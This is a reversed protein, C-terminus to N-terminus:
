IFIKGHVKNLHDYTAAGTPFTAMCTWCIHISCKQCTMHQCGGNKEIDTNCKPCPRVGVSKKWNEFMTDMIDQNMLLKYEECTVGPHSSKKCSTCFSGQCLTCKIAPSGKKFIQECDPTLCSMYDKQNLSMFNNVSLKVLRQMDEEKLLNVLDELLIIESCAACKIPISSQDVISEALQASLCTSCFSHGCHLLTYPDNMEDFCVPCDEKSKQALKDDKSIKKFAKLIEPIAGELAAPLGTVEIAKKLFNIRIKTLEFKTKIKELLESQNKILNKISFGEYNITETKMRGIFAELANEIDPIKNESGYISLTKQRYNIRISLEFETELKRLYALMFNQPKDKEERKGGKFDEKKGFKSGNRDKGGRPNKGKEEPQQVANQRPAFICDAVTRLDVQLTQPEFVRLILEAGEAASPATDGVVKVKIHGDGEFNKEFFSVKLAKQYKKKLAEFRTDFEKKLLRFVEKDMHYYFIFTRFFIMTKGQISITRPITDAQKVTETRVFVTIETADPPKAGFNTKKGVHKRTEIGFVELETKNRNKITELAEALMMQIKPDHESQLPVNEIWKLKFTQRDIVDTGKTKSSKFVTENKKIKMDRSEMFFDQNLSLLGDEDVQSDFIKIICRGFSIQKSASPGLFDKKAEEQGRSQKFPKRKQENTLILDINKLNTYRELLKLIDLRSVSLPINTIIYERKADFLLLKSVVGGNTLVAKCDGGAPLVADKKKLAEKTQTVLEQIKKQTEAVQAKSVFVSITSDIENFRIRANSPLGLTKLQEQKNFINYFLAYGDIKVIAEELQLDELLKAPDNAKIFELPVAQKYLDMPLSFGLSPVITDTNFLRHLGMCVLIDGKMKQVDNATVSKKSQLHLFGLNQFGSYVCASQHLMFASLLRRSEDTAESKAALDLKVIKRALDLVLFTNYQLTIMSGFSLGTSKQLQSMFSNNFLGLKAGAVVYDMAQLIDITALIRDMRSRRSTTSTLSMTESKREESDDYISGQEESEDEDDDEDIRISEEPKQLSDSTVGPSIALLKKSTKLLALMAVVDLTMGRQSGLVLNPFADIGFEFMLDLLQLNRQFQGKEFYNKNVKFLLDKDAKIHDPPSLNFLAFVLLILEKQTATLTNMGSDQALTDGNYLRFTTTLASARKESEISTIPVYSRYELGESNVTVARYGSDIIRVINAPLLGTISHKGSAVVMTLQNPNSEYLRALDFPKLFHYDLNILRIIRGRQKDVQGAKWQSAFYGQDASSKTYFLILGNDGNNASLRVHKLQERIYDSARGKPDGANIITPQTPESNSDFTAMDYEKEKIGNEGLSSLCLETAGYLILKCKPLVKTTLSILIDLLQGYNEFSKANIVYVMDAGRSGEQESFYSNNEALLGKLTNKFDLFEINEGEFNFAGAFRRILTGTVSEPRTIYSSVVRSGILLSELKSKSVVKISTTTADRGQLALFEQVYDLVLLMDDFREEDEVVVINNKNLADLLSTRASLIQEVKMEEAKDLFYHAMVRVILGQLREYKRPDEVKQLQAILGTKIQENWWATLMQDFGDILSQSVKIKTPKTSIMMDEEKKEEDDSSEGMDERELQKREEVAIQMQILAKRYTDFVGFLAKDDLVDSFSSKPVRNTLQIPLSFRAWLNLDFDRLKQNIREKKGEGKHEHKYSGKSGRSENLREKERLEKKIRAKEQNTLEREPGPGEGEGKNEAMSADDKMVKSERMPRDRYKGGKEYKEPREFGEQKKQEKKLQAREYNTLRKESIQDAANLKSEEEDGSASSGDDGKKADSNVKEKDDNKFKRERKEKPGKGELREQERRLQAREYNTLRKESSESVQDSINQAGQLDQDGQNRKGYTKEGKPRKESGDDGEKFGDKDKYHRERYKPKEGGEGLQEGEGANFKKHKEGSYKRRHFKEGHEREGQGDQFKKYKEGSHKRRHFKESKEGKESKESQEKADRDGGGDKFKKYKEGSHKRRHFKEGQDGEGQGDKFKKFKEGSHKRRHFKEGQVELGAQGEQFEKYKNGSHKRRHFKEGQDENDYQKKDKPYRRGGQSSQSDDLNQENM